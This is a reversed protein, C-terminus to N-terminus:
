QIILFMMPDIADILEIYDTTITVTEYKEM